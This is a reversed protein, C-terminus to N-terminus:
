RKEVIFSAIISKLEEHMTPWSKIHKVPIWYQLTLGLYARVRVRCSVRSFCRAFLYHNEGDDPNFVYYITM